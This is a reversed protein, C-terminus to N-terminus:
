FNAQLWEDVSEALAKNDLASLLRKSKQALIKARQQQGSRLAIQAALFNADASGRFNELDFFAQSALELSYINEQYKGLHFLVIARESPSLDSGDISEQEGQLILVISKQRNTKSFRNAADLSETQGHALFTTVYTEFLANNNDGDFGHAIQLAEDCFTIDSHCLGLNAKWELENNGSLTAYKLAEIGAQKNYIGEIYIEELASTAVEAYHNQIINNSSCGALYACLWAVNITNSLRM